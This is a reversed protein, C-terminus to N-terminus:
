QPTQLTWTGCGSTYFAVDSSAITVQLGDSWTGSELVQDDANQLNGLREWECSSADEPAGITYTGPALKSHIRYIGDGFQLLLIGDGATSCVAGAFGCTTEGSISISDSSVGNEHTRVTFHHASGIVLGSILKNTATIEVDSGGDFTYQFTEYGDPADWYFNIWTTGANYQLNTPPPPVVKVNLTAIVTDDYSALLKVTGQGVSCGHLTRSTPALEGDIGRGAQGDPGEDASACGGHGLRETIRFKVFTHEPDANAATVTFTNGVQIRLTENEAFTVSGVSLDASLDPRTAINFTKSTILANDSSRRLWVTAQGSPCAHFTVTAPWSMASTTGNITGAPGSFCQSSRLNPTTELLFETADPDVTATIDFAEAEYITSRSLSLTGTM